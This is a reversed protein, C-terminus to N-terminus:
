CSNEMNLFVNNVVIPYSLDKGENERCSHIWYFDKLESITLDSVM